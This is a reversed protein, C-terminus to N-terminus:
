VMLYISLLGFFIGAAMKINIKENFVFMGALAVLIIGSINMIAYIKSINNNIYLKSLSYALLIYSLIALIFWYLDDRNIYYKICVISALSAIISCALWLIEM